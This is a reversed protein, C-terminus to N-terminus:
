RELGRSRDQDYLSTITLGREVADNVIATLLLKEKSHKFARHLEEASFSRVKKSRLLAFAQEQM